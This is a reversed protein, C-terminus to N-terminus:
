LNLDFNKPFHFNNPIKGLYSSLSERLIGSIDEPFDHEKIGLDGRHTWDVIIYETKGNKSRKIINNDRM